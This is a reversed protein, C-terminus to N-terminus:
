QNKNNRFPKIKFDAWIYNGNKAIIRVDRVQDDFAFKNKLDKYKLLDDSYIFKLFSKGILDKNTYGLKHKFSDENIYEIKFDEMPEAVIILDNFNEWILRDREVFDYIPKVKSIM